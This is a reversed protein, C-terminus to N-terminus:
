NTFSMKLAAELRQMKDRKKKGPAFIFAEGVIIRNKVNTGYKLYSIFLGGMADNRMEWLGCVKSIKGKQYMTDLVSKTVMYMGNQEGLINIKMVSDRQHVFNKNKIVYFCMNVMASASNNSLWIFKKGRKLLTLDNPVFVNVNFEKKIINEAEVNHYIKINKQIYQLETQQISNRILSGYKSALSKFAKKTPSTILFITQPAAYINDKRWIAIRKYKLSDFKLIVINRYLYNNIVLNKESIYKVDLAPESQPLGIISKSLESYILSDTDGVVFVSNAAGYSQPKSKKASCSVFFIISTIFVVIHYTNVVINM